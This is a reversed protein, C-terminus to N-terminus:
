LATFIQFSDYPKDIRELNYLNEIRMDKYAQLEAKDFNEDKILLERLQNKLKKLSQNMKAGNNPKSIHRFVKLSEQLSLFFKYKFSSHGL